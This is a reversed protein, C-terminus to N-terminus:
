DNEFRAPLADLRWLTTPRSPESPLAVMASETNHRMVYAISGVFSTAAVGLVASLLLGNSIVPQRTPRREPRHDRFDTGDFPM